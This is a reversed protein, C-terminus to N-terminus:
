ANSSNKECQGNLILGALRFDWPTDIQLSREPPMIYGFTRPPYFSQYSRLADWRNVFGAGNIAYATPLDQRRLYPIDPVIFEQLLGEASMQRLLYPHDHTETIAVVADAEKEYALAVMGDIDEALRLPSTPQLTFVYDPTGQGHSDLWDLAHLVVDLHSTTDEALGKPRMFPVDAGFDRAVSAIEEDDTSVIVGDLLRSNLAAEITWAIVPKGALPLVNKRPVGKSGGRATILGICCHGAPRDEKSNLPGGGHIASM